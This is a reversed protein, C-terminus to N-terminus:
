AAPSPEPPPPSTLPRVQFTASTHRGGAGTVVVQYTGPPIPGPFFDHAQGIAYNFTGLDDVVPRFRAAGHGALRVTVQTRPIWGTGHMLFVTNPDGFPQLLEIGPRGRPSSAFATPPPGGPPPLPVGASLGSTPTSGPNPSGSGSNSLLVGITAGVGVLAAAALTRGALGLTARHRRRKRAPYRPHGGPGGRGARRRRPWGRIRRGRPVPLATHSGFTADGSAEDDAAGNALQPGHRYDEILRIAAPTLYAHSGNAAASADVFPGLQTLLTASAPRKRPSRELCATIMDTLEGPLGTLDPPETALRVLVDM